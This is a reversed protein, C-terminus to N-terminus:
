KQENKKNKDKKGYKKKIKGRGRPESSTGERESL